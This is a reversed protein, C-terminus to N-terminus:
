KPRLETWFKSINNKKQRQTQQQLQKKRLMLLDQNRQESYLKKNNDLNRLLQDLIKLSPSSKARPFIKSKRIKL